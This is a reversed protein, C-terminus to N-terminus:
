LWHKILAVIGGIIAGILVGLPFMVLGIFFVWWLFLFAYQPLDCPEGSSSRRICLVILM